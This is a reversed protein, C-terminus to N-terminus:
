ICCTRGLLQWSKWCCANLSSKNCFVFSFGEVFKRFKAIGFYTWNLQFDYNMIGSLTRQVDRSIIPIIEILFFVVPGTWELITSVVAMRLLETTNRYHSQIYCPVQVSTLQFIIWIWSFSLSPKSPYVTHFPRKGSYLQWLPLIGLMVLSMLLQMTSDVRITLWLLASNDFRNM